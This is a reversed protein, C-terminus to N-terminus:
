FLKKGAAESSNVITKITDVIKKLIQDINKSNEATGVSLKRIEDAVVAFGKGSDGAHAAEIAANMSLLNTQSAIAAIITNTELLAESQNQINNVQQIVENLLTEGLGSSDTLSTYYKRSRSVLNAVSSINAIQQEIVASSEMIMGAQEKISKELNKMGATIEEISNFTSNINRNIESGAMISDTISTDSSKLVEATRNMSDSLEGATSKLNEFLKKVESINDSLTESLINLNKSLQGTEDKARVDSKVGLNGDKLIEFSSIISKISRSIGASFFIIILGIVVVTIAGIVATLRSVKNPIEMIIREPISIIYLWNSGSGRINVSSFIQIYQENDTESFSSIKVVDGSGAAESAASVADATGTESIYTNKRESDSDSIVLGEGDAITSRGGTAQDIRSIVINLFDISIDIGAVGYVAGSDDILPLAISLMDVSTGEEIEESYPESLYLSKSNKPISYYDDDYSEVGWAETSVVVSGEDDRYAWVAYNGTEDYDETNAYSSDKGDWGDPEFLVWYSFFSENTELYKALVATLINRDTYGRVKLENILETLLYVNDVALGMQTEITNSANLAHQEASSYANDILAASTVSNIEIVSLAFLIVVPFLIFVILKNRIKM